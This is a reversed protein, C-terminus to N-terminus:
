ETVDDKLSIDFEHKTYGTFSHNLTGCM